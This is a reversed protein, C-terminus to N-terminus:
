EEHCSPKFCKLRKLFNVSEQFYPSDKTSSLFDPVYVDGNFVAIIYPDNNDIAIQKAQKTINHQLGFKKIIIDALIIQDINGILKGCGLNQWIRERFIFRTYKKCTIYKWLRYDVEKKLEYICKENFEEDSTSAHSRTNILLEALNWMIFIQLPDCWINLDDELEKNWVEEIKEKIYEKEPDNGFWKERYIKGRNLIIDRNEDFSIM